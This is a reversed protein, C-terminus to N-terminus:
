HLIGVRYCVLDLCHNAGGEMLLVKKKGERRLTFKLSGSEMSWRSVSSYSYELQRSLAALHSSEHSCSAYMAAKM